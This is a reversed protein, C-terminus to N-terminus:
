TDSYNVIKQQNYIGECSTKIVNKNSDHTSSSTDINNIKKGRCGNHQKYRIDNEEVVSHRIWVSCRLYEFGILTVVVLLRM